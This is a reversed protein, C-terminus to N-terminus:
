LLKLAGTVQDILGAPGPGVGCVTRSGAAVQTRGADHIPCVVLGLSLARALVLELEADDECRLAM